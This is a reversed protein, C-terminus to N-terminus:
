YVIIGETNVDLKAIENRHAVLPNIIYRGTEANWLLITEDESGGRNTFVKKATSFNHM